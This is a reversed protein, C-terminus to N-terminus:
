YQFILTTEIIHLLLMCESASYFPNNRRYMRIIHLLTYMGVYFPNNDVTRESLTRHQMCGSISRIKKSPIVSYLLGDSSVHYNFEDM